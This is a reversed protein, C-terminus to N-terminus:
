NSLKSRTKKIMEIKGFLRENELRIKRESHKEQELKKLNKINNNTSMRNAKRESIKELAESLRKNELQVSRMKERKGYSLGGGLKMETTKEVNKRTMIKGISEVLRQNEKSIRYRKETLGAEKKANMAKSYAGFYKPQEVDVSPKMKRIREKLVERDKEIWKRMYERMGKERIGIRIGSKKKGSKTESAMKEINLNVKNAFHCSKKNVPIKNTM